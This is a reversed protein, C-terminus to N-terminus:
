KKNKSVEANWDGIISLIDKNPKLELLDQLSRQHSQPLSDTQLAPSGIEIGPDPLDEPSPCAVWETNKGQLDENFWDVENKLM